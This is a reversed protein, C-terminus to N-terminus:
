QGEKFKSLAERLNPYRDFSNCRRCGNKCKDAAVAVDLLLQLSDAAEDLLDVSYVKVSGDTQITVREADDPLELIKELEHITPRKSQASVHGRLREIQQEIRTFDM